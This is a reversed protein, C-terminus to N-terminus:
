FNINAFEYWDSTGNGTTNFRGATTMRPEQIPGEAIGGRIGVDIFCIGGPDSIGTM